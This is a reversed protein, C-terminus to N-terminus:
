SRFMHLRFMLVGNPTLVDYAHQSAPSITALTRAGVSGCNRPSQLSYSCPSAGCTDPDDGFDVVAQVVDPVALISSHCGLTPKINLVQVIVVINIYKSTHLDIIGYGKLPYAVVSNTTTSKRYTQPLHDNILWLLVVPRCYHHNKIKLCTQPNTIDQSYLSYPIM